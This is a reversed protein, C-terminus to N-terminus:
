RANAQRARARRDLEALIQEAAARIVPEDDKLVARLYDASAPDARLALVRLAGIRVDIDDNKELLTGITALSQPDKDRGLIEVAAMRVDWMEDGLAKIAPRRSVEIPRAGLAKMAELRVEDNYYNEVLKLLQNIDADPSFAGESGLRAAELKEKRADEYADPDDDEAEVEKEDAQDHMEEVFLGDLAPVAIPGTLASDRRSGEIMSHIRLVLQRPAKADAGVIEQIVYNVNTLIKVLAPEVPLDAFEVSVTGALKEQGVVAIGTLQSVKQIVDGLPADAVHVTLGGNAWTVDAPTQAFVPASLFTFVVCARLTTALYRM